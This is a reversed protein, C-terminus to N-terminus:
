SQRRVGRARGSARHCGPGRQVGTVPCHPASAAHRWLGVLITPLSVLLSLTGAIKVDIGYGFILTPIILEGGAVGLLSSVIGIGIGAVLASALRLVPPMVPASWTPTLTSEVLLLLGIALLLLKVVRHRAADSVRGAVLRWPVRGARKGRGARPRHRLWRQATCRGRAARRTGVRRDKHVDDM